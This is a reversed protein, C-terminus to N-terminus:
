RHGHRVKDTLLRFFPIYWVALFRGKDGDAIYTNFAGPDQFLNSQMSFSYRELIPIWTKSTLLLNHHSCRDHNPAGGLAIVLSLIILGLIM